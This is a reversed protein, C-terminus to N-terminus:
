SECWWKEGLKPDGVGALICGANVASVPVASPPCGCEVCTMAALLRGLNRVGCPTDLRRLSNDFRYHNVYDSVRMIYENTDNESPPAWRNIITIINWEIQQQTFLRNYSRMVKAAARYGFTMNIFECFEKDSQCAKLGQWKEGKRINLPNNNRWGRSKLYKEM